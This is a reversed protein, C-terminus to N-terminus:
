FVDSGEQESNAVMQWLKLIVNTEAARQCRGWFINQLPRNVKEPSLCFGHTPSVLVKQLNLVNKPNPQKGWGKKLHSEEFHAFFIRQHFCLWHSGLFFSSNRKIRDREIFSLLFTWLNPMKISYTWLTRAPERRHLAKQGPNFAVIVCGGWSWRQGGHVCNIEFAAVQLKSRILPQHKHLHICSILCIESVLVCM